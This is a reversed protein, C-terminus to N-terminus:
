KRPYSNNTEDRFGTYIYPRVKYFQNYWQIWKIIHRWLLYRLVEIYTKTKIRGDEVPRIITHRPNDTRGDTRTDTQRDTLKKSIRALKKDTWSLKVICTSWVCTCWWWVSHWTGSYHGESWPWPWLELDFTLYPRQKDLGYSKIRVLYNSSVEYVCASDSRVAKM